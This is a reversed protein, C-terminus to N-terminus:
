AQRRRRSAEELEQIERRLRLARLYFRGLGRMDENSIHDLEIVGKRLLKLVQYKQKGPLREKIMELTIVTDKLRERLKDAKYRAKDLEPQIREFDATAFAGWDPKGDMDISPRIPCRSAKYPLRLVPGFEEM